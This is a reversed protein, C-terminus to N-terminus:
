SFCPFFLTEMTNLWTILNPSTSIIFKSSINLINQKVILFKTGVDIITILSAIIFKLSLINTLIPLIIEDNVIKIGVIM